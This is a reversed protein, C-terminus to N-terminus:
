NYDEWLKVTLDLSILCVNMMKQNKCGNCEPCMLKRVVEGTTINHNAKLFDIYTERDLGIRFNSIPYYVYPNGEVDVGYIYREDIRLVKIKSGSIIGDTATLISGVRM